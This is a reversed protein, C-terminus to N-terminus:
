KWRSDENRISITNGDPTIVRGTAVFPASLPARGSSRSLSGSRARMGLFCLEIISVPIIACASTHNRTCKTVTALPGVPSIRPGSARPLQISRGVIFSAM